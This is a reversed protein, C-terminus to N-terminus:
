ESGDDIALAGLAGYEHHALVEPADGADDDVMAGFVSRPEVRVFELLEGFERAGPSEKAGNFTGLFLAEEEFAAGRKTRADLGARALVHFM